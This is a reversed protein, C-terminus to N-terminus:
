KFIDITKTIFKTLMEASYNKDFGYKKILKCLEIEFTNQVSNGVGSSSNVENQTKVCYILVEELQEDTLMVNNKTEVITGDSKVQVIWTEIDTNQLDAPLIKKLAMKYFAVQMGYMTAKDQLLTKNPGHMPKTWRNAAIDDATKWDIITIVNKAKNYIIMNTRGGILIGNVTNFLPIERGVMEWGANELAGWYRDWASTRKYIAEDNTFDVLQMWQSMTTKQGDPETVHAVYDDLASGIMIAREGTAKWQRLIAQPSMQYYKSSTDNFYKASLKEATGQQDFEDVLWHILGTIYHQANKYPEFPIHLDVKKM